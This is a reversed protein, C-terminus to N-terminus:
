DSLDRILRGVATISREYSKVSAIEDLEGVPPADASSPLFVSFSARGYAAAPPQGPLILDASLRTSAVQRNDRSPPEVGGPEVANRLM